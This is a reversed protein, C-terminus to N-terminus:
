AGSEDVEIVIEWAGSNDPLVNDNVCIEMPGTQNATFTVDTGGQIVQTGVKIILSYKRYDPFPFNPDKANEGDANYICGGFWCGFNIRVLNPNPHRPSPSMIHVITNKRLPPVDPVRDCLNLGPAYALDFIGPKVFIKTEAMGACNEVSGVKVTKRGSWGTYVHGFGPYISLDVNDYVEPPTGDGFDISIKGCKGQGDVYFAATKNLEIEKRRDQGASPNGLDPKIGKIVGVGCGLLAAATLAMLLCAMLDKKSFHKLISNGRLNSGCWLISM